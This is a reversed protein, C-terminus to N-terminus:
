AHQALFRRITAVHEEIAALQREVGNSRSEARLGDKVAAELAARAKACTDLLYGAAKRDKKLQRQAELVDAIIDRAQKRSDEDQLVAVLATDIAQDDGGMGGGFLEDLESSTSAPKVPFEAALRNSVEEINDALAPIAEYLRGVATPDDILAFTAEKFMEQRAVGSVKKRWQVLRRFAFEYTSVQSWLDPKGRSRLYQAAYDRMDLLEEVEDPKMRYLEALETPTFGTDLKAVMMNAQADWYYDARIDKEIQLMAEIRDIQRDTCHPLVAVDIDTFHGYRNRDTNLLERWTSLRRNGNIVFGNEDLLIPGVQQNATDEFYKSLDAVKGLQLLLGHQVEQADWLEPDGKFLDRRVDPHKALYEVQLSATRGNAMRYKPLDIPVRIIPIDKPQGQIVVRHTPLGKAELLTAFEELRAPKPWGFRSGKPSTPLPSISM